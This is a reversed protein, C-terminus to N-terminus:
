KEYLVCFQYCSFVIKKIRSKIYEVNENSTHLLFLVSPFISFHSFNYVGVRRISFCFFLGHCTSDSYWSVHFTSKMMEIWRTESGRYINRLCYKTSFSLRSLSFFFIFPSSFFFESESFFLVYFSLFFSYIFFFNKLHFVCFVVFNKLSCVSHFFKTCTKLHFYNYVIKRRHQHFDSM